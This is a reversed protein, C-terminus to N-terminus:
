RLAPALDFSLEGERADFEIGYGNGIDEKTFDSPAKRTGFSQALRDWSGVHPHGQM